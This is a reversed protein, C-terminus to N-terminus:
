KKGTEHYFPCFLAKVSSIGHMEIVRINFDIQIGNGIIKIGDAAFCAALDHSDDLGIGVTV